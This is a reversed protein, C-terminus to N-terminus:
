SRWSSSAKGAVYLEDPGDATFDRDVLDPAAQGSDRVTTRTGKRRSVGQLGAARM